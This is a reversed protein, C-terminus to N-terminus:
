QKVSKSIQQSVQARKQRYIKFIVHLSDLAIILTIGWIFGTGVLSLDFGIDLSVALANEIPYNFVFWLILLYIGNKVLELWLTLNNKFFRIIYVIIEIGFVSIVILSYITAAPQNFLPQYDKFDFSLFFLTHFRFYIYLVLCFGFFMLILYIMKPVKIEVKQSEGRFFKPWPLKVDKKEQTVIYLIIGVLGIDFVLTMPVLGILDFINEMRPILFFPFMQVRIRLIFCLITFGYHIAFLIGAYLFLHKRFAPAILQYGELYKEAVQRPSGYGSIIKGVSEETLEGYESEAKELIHSRIESLIEEGGKEVVLYHDIEELYDELRKFKSM